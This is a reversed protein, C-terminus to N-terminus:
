DIWNKEPPWIENPLKAGCSDPKVNAEWSLKVFRKLDGRSLADARGNKLTPVFRVFVRFNETLGLKVLVRLLFMCNKCSSTLKNVMEVVSQNDCYMIFRTNMLKNKWVMISAVLAFLELFAISPKKEKMFTENWQAMIWSNNFVGGMGGNTEGGSADMYFDLIHADKAELLDVWPRCVTKHIEGDNGKLFSLWTMCDVKFEGDLKVHHYSKLNESVKNFKAYM